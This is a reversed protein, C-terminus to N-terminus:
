YLKIIRDITACSMRCNLRNLDCLLDRSIPVVKHVQNAFTTLSEFHDASDSGGPTGPVSCPEPESSPSRARKTLYKLLMGISCGAGAAFGCPSPICTYVPSSLLTDMFGCICMNPIKRYALPSNGAQLTDYFKPVATFVPLQTTPHKYCTPRCVIVSDTDSDSDSDTSAWCQCQCHM